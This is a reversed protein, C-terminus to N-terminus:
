GCMIMSGVYIRAPVLFHLANTFDAQVNEISGIATTPGLDLGLAPNSVIITGSRQSYKAFNMGSKLSEIDFGHKAYQRM